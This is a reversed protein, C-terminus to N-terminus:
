PHAEGEGKGPNHNPVLKQIAEVRITDGVKLHLHKRVTKKITIRWGQIVVADFSTEM